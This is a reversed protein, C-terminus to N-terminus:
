RPDNSLEEGVLQLSRQKADVLIEFRNWYIDIAVM